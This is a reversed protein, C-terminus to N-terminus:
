GDDIRAHKHLVVCSPRDSVDSCDGFVESPVTDVANFTRALLAAECELWSEKSEGGKRRRWDPILRLDEVVRAHARVRPAEGVVAGLEGTM